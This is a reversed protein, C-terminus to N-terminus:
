IGTGHAHHDSMIIYVNCWTLRPDNVQPVWSGYMSEMHMEMSAKFREDM